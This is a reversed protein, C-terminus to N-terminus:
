AAVAYLLLNHVGPGLGVAAVVALLLYGQRPDSEVFDAFLWVVAAAVALKVLVFLWGVGIAEATPLAAAVDLILRSAPTREGFGLLDVGIATSAGDLAHGFLVVVGAYGTAGAEPVLSRLGRWTAATLGAAVLLGAVPWLPAVGGGSLLVAGAALGFAVAGAAALRRAVAAPGPGRRELLLWAAGLVVFVAAYVAPAGLLPRIAGPAAELVYLAHLASGVAMWPVLGLVTDATVAPALRWLGAAVAGVGVVLVLLYPLPPLAFGAPLIAM